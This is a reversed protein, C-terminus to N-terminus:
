VKLVITLENYIKNDFNFANKGPSMPHKNKMFTKIEFLSTYTIQLM